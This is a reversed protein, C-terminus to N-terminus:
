IACEPKYISSDVDTATATTTAAAQAQCTADVIRLTNALQPANGGVCVCVCVYM